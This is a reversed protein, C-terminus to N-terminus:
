QEVSYTIDVSQFEGSEAQLKIRDSISYDVSLKPQNDFLGVGYRIFIEPTLYKGITLVSNNINSRTEVALADLGLKDRVQNTLGQSRNLGLKAISGLLPGSDGASISSFPRGTILVSLIDNESLAPTSFLESNINKLTGSMLVGVTLNDVERVARIDVAPNDYAGFFMFKGQRISLQQGYIQYSGDVISLEGYTLNSGEKTQRINLDGAVRTNMGFGSFSVQEGLSVDIDGAIPIDFLSSDSASLSRALEPRNSPYNTIIVDRSVDIASEPLEQLTLEMIPFVIAGNIQVQESNASLLIDPSIALKLDQINVLEFDSGSLQASLERAPSFLNSVAGDLEISGSGSDVSGEFLLAGTNSSNLLTTFNSLSIGLAEISLSANTIQATGTIEPNDITGAIETEANLSGNINSLEPLFAEVWRIDSLGININGNLSRDADLSVDGSVDGSLDINSDEISEGLFSIGSSLHWRGNTLDAMLENSQLKYIQPEQIEGDDFEDDTAPQISIVGQKSRVALEVELESDRSLSASLDGDLLGEIFVRQPLKPFEFVDASLSSVSTNAVNFIGLPYNELVATLSSTQGAESNLTLCLSAGGQLWCSDSLKLNDRSLILDAPIQSNWIGLITSATGRSLSGQWTMASLDSIGGLLLLDLNGLDSNISGLIQHAEQTGEISWNMAPVDIKQSDDIYSLNIARLEGQVQGNSQEISINLDELEVTGNSLDMAALQGKLNPNSPYGQLSGSGTLEGSIDALLEQLAPADIQWNIDLTDSYSGQLSLRNSQTSLQLESIQLSDDEYSVSGSALMPYEGLFGRLEELDLSARTEGSRLLVDFYGNGSTNSMQFPPSQNLYSMPNQESFTFDGTAQLLEGMQIQAQGSISGSDTTLQYQSITLNSERYMAEAIVTTEPMGDSIAITQLYLDIESTNGTTRLVINRLEIPLPPEYPITFTEASHTLDISLPSDYLGPNFTGASLVALPNILQHHAELGRLDGNLELIGRFNEYLDLVPEEYQWSLKAELPLHETISLEIDGEASMNAAVVKLDSVVLDEDELSLSFAVHELQYIEGDQNIEIREASFNNIAIGIPMPNDFSSSDIETSEIDSDNNSRLKATIGDIELTSLYLNGSLLSYPNWRTSVQEISLDISENSFRTDHFTLGRFLTGQMEKVSFTLQPNTNLRQYLNELVLRSGSQTSLLFSAIGLLIITISLLVAAGILAIRAPREIKDAIKDAIM